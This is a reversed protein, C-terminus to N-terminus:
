RQFCGRYDPPNFCNYNEHWHLLCSSSSMFANILLLGAGPAPHLAAPHSLLSDPGSGSLVPVHGLAVQSACLHIGVNPTVM